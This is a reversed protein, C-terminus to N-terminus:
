VREIDGTNQDRFGWAGTPCIPRNDLQIARVECGVEHSDYRKIACEWRGCVVDACVANDVNGADPFGDLRQCIANEQM